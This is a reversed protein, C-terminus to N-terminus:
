KITIGLKRIIDATKEIAANAFLIGSSSSKDLVVDYAKETAYDQVAKFVRDQIPKILEQRKKFLTGEPGFKEKQLERVEKEKKTIEDEKQKRMEDSMIVQEAQYKNYMSKIKDLEQNIEQRWQTSIKDLDEQAKKYEPVVELVAGIDVIAVKQAIGLGINSMLFVLLVVIKKM